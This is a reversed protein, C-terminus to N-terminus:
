AAEAPVWVEIGPFADGKDRNCAWHAARLNTPDNSGGASVPQVHDVTGSLSHPWARDQPISGSCLYCRWGDRALIRQRVRKSVGRRHQDRVSWRRRESCETSCTVQRSRTTTFSLGCTACIAHRAIGPRKGIPMCFPSCYRRHWKPLPMGCGACPRDQVEPRRTKFRITERNRAYRARISCAASCYRRPNRPRAGQVVPGQCWNCNTPAPVRSRSKTCSSCETRGLNTGYGCSRCVSRSM